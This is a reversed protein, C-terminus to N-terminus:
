DPGGIKGQSGWAARTAADVAADLGHKGQAVGLLFERWQDARVRFPNPNPSPHRDHILEAAFVLAAAAAAAPTPNLPVAYAAGLAADVARSAEALVQELLGADPQGDGDDDLAAALHPGPIVSRLSAETTYNM